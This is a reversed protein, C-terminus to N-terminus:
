RFAKIRSILESESKIPNNLWGEYVKRKVISWFYYDLPNSDPSKPPWEDKKVFRRPMTEKLFDQVFNSTHSSAGDQIFIWNEWPCIQNIEPFFINKLHNRYNKANTKLGQKSVFIPKTIGHWTLAAVMVKISQRNTSHFLNEEPADGKQGKFNVIDNQSNLPIELPFDSEDQFVAREIMRPNKNFKKLLIAVRDVRTQTRENMHPIKLRKFQKIGKRKVIRRVMTHSVDLEESVNRPSFHMRPQRGSFLKKEPTMATVSCGSGKQCEM